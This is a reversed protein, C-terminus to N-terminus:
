RTAPSLAKSLGSAALVPELMWEWIRRREQVVDAELTMGPKLSQEQGYAQQVQSALSVTVRYMPENSQAATMIAQSQGAPLDQAALPTRSVSEILGRAMGFKQFPYAAYRIWVEQGPQVFGAMRSPAFLQAQLPSPKGDASRPVLVALTQGAQVLQGRNVTLAAVTGAQPAIVVIERRASNETGEQNLSALSRDIQILQAQLASRNAVEEAQLAQIDRRVSILGREATSERGVLDLLEEQKQQAQIEAVFGKKALDDYREVSKRALALRRHAGELEGEAQRAESELSRTRDAAAQQRQRYQTEAITREAQMTARRQQLNQAILVSTDGQVTSRDVGVKLLVQNIAVIDGEKVRIELLTGSQPASLTLTGETPVLLGTLRAKRTTEGCVAYALLAAALLIATAAVALFSPNRGIRITGLYHSQRAVLVEDRFLKSDAM